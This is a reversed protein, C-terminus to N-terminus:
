EDKEKEEFWYKRVLTEKGRHYTPLQECLIYNGPKIEKGEEYLQALYAKCWDDIIKNHNDRIEQVIKQLIEDSM